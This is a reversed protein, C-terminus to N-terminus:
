GHEDTARRRRWDRIRVWGETASICVGIWFLGGAFGALVDTLYHVGLYVRSLGVVLVMAICLAVAAVRWARHHEISFYVVYALAGFFLMSGMSHGSPFSYGNAVVLHPFADPRPRQYHTKLLVNLLPGGTMTALFAFLRRKSGVVALIVIVVVTLVTLTAANGVLTVKQVIPTLWPTHMALAVRQAWMDLGVAAPAEMVEHKIYNFVLGMLLALLFGTVLHLGLYGEPSLWKAYVAVWRAGRNEPAEPQDSSTM